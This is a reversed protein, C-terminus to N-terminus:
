GVMLSGNSMMGPAYRGLEESKRRLYRAIKPIKYYLIISDTKLM